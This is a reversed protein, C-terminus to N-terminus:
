PDELLRKREDPELQKWQGAFEIVLGVQYPRYTHFALGPSALGPTLGATLEPPISVPELSWGLVRDLLERERTSDTTYVILLHVYLVEAMLQYAEPPAGELQRELKDLFSQGTSEDPRDLFRRHLEDLWESTWIAKGPTFPSDDRTLGRDVWAAAAAYVTEAGALRTGM